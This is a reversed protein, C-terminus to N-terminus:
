TDVPIENLPLRQYLGEHTNNYHGWMLTRVVPNGVINFTSNEDTLVYSSWNDQRPFEYRFALGDDFVRVALNVLREGGTRDALTIVAGNHRDRATKVKGVVLEYQEDVESYRTDIIRLSKGFDRDDKFALSLESNQILTKGKYAVQYLPAEAT